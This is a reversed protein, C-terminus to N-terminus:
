YKCDACQCNGLHTCVSGIESPVRRSTAQTPPEVAPRLPSDEGHLRQRAPGVLDLFGGNGPPAKYKKVALETAIVSTRHVARKPSQQRRGSHGRQAVLPPAGPLMGRPAGPLMGLVPPSPVQVPGDNADALDTSYHVESLAPLETNMDYTEEGFGTFQFIPPDMKALSDIDTRYDGTGGSAIYDLKSANYIASELDKLKMALVSETARFGGILPSEKPIPSMPMARFSAMTRYGLSPASQLSAASPSGILVGPNSDSQQAKNSSSLTSRFKNARLTPTRQTLSPLMDMSQHRGTTNQPVKPGTHLVRPIANFESKLTNSGVETQPDSTAMRALAEKRTRPRVATLRNGGSEPESFDQTSNNLRNVWKDKMDSTACRFTCKKGDIKATFQRLEVSDSDLKLPKQGKRLSVKDRRETLIIVNRGADHLYNCVVVIDSMLALTTPFVDDDTVLELKDLLLLKRGPLGIDFGPYDALVHPSASVGQLFDVYDRPLDTALVENPGDVLFDAIVRHLFVYQNKSGILQPRCRRAAVLSDHIDVHKDIAYRDLEIDMVVFVGARDAGNSCHVVIPAISDKAINDKVIGRFLILAGTELPTSASPFGLFQCHTVTFKKRAVKPDVPFFSPKLDVSPPGVEVTFKRVIANAQQVTQYASHLTVSVQGYQVSVGVEDSWYQYSQEVGSETTSTVMVITECEKEVVMRWFEDTTCDLPGQTAIYERREFGTVISANIYDACVMSSDDPQYLAVRSVDYPLHDASRNKSRNLPHRAAMFNEATALPEETMNVGRLKVKNYSRFEAENLMVVADRTVNFSGVTDSRVYWFGAVVVVLLISLVLALVVVSASTKKAPTAKKSSGEAPQTPRTVTSSQTPFPVLIASEVITDSAQIGLFKLNPEQGFYGNVKFLNALTATIKDLQEVTGLRKVIGFRVNTARATETSTGTLVVDVLAAVKAPLLASHVALSLAFIIEDKLTQSAKLTGSELNYLVLRGTVQVSSPVGHGEVSDFPNFTAPTTAKV